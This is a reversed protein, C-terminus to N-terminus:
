LYNYFSVNNTNETYKGMCERVTEKLISRVRKNKPLVKSQIKLAETKDTKTSIIFALFLEEKYTTDALSWYYQDFAHPLYNLIDTILRIKESTKM